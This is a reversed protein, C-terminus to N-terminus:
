PHPLPRMAAPQNPIANAIAKLTGSQSSIPAATQSTRQLMAALLATIALSM